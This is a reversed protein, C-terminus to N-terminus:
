NYIVEFTLIRQYVQAEDDYLDTKSNLFIDQITAFTGVVKYRKLALIVQAALAKAVAYSGSPEDCYTKVRFFEREDGIDSGMAPVSAGALLSYTIAPYTPKQPLKVPYVRTSALATVGAYNTLRAFLEKEIDAM